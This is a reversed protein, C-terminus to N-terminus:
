YRALLLTRDLLRDEDDDREDEVLSKVLCLCHLNVQWMKWAAKILLSMFCLVSFFLELLISIENDLREHLRDKPEPITAWFRCELATLGM